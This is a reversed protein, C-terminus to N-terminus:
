TVAGLMLGTSAALRTMDQVLEFCPVTALLRDVLARRREVASGPFWAALFPDYKTAEPEVTSLLATRARPGDLRRVRGAGAGADFRPFVVADVASAPALRCGFATALEACRIWVSSPLTTGDEATVSEEAKHRGPYGNTPHRGASLLRRVDPARRALALLVDTRINVTRPWGYGVPAGDPDALTVDDNSVFEARGHLLTSLITSTKGSRKGGAVLIGRGEHRVLGGHLFLDGAAYARWRLLHRVSRLLQQDRWATSGNLLAVARLGENAWLVRDPEYASSSVVRSWGAGTPPASVVRVSPSSDNEGITVTLFPAGLRVLAGVADEPAHVVVTAGAREVTAAVDGM